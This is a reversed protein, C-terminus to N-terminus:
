GGVVLRPRNLSWRRLERLAKIPIETTSNMWDKVTAVKKRATIKAVKEATLNYSGVIALFEAQHGTEIEATEAPRNQGNKAMGSSYLSQRTEATKAVQPKENQGNEAAEIKEAAAAEVPAIEATKPRRGIWAASAAVALGISLPEMIAVLLCVFVLLARSEKVGAVSALAIVPSAGADATAIRVNIQQQEVLNAQLRQQL